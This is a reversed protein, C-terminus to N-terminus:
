PRRREYRRVPITVLTTHTEVPYLSLLVTKVAQKVENIHQHIGKM